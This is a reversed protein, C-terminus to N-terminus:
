HPRPLFPRYSRRRQPPKCPVRSYYCLNTRITTDVLFLNYAESLPLLLLTLAHNNPSFQKFLFYYFSASDIRLSTFFLIIFAAMVGLVETAFEMKFPNVEVDGSLETQIGADETITIAEQVQDISDQSVDM